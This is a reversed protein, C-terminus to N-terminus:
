AKRWLPCALAYTAFQSLFLKNRFRGTFNLLGMNKMIILNDQVKQFDQIAISETMEM